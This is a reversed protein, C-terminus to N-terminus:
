SGVESKQNRIRTEDQGKEKLDFTFKINLGFRKELKRWISSTIIVCSMKILVNHM